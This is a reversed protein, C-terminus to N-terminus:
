ELFAFSGNRVTKLRVTQVVDGNSDFSTVGMVGKYKNIGYLGNKIEEPGGGKADIAEILINTADYSLAAFIDPEARFKRRFGQRFKQVTEDQDEPNYAPFTYIVDEAARGAVKLVEPDEFLVTSFVRPAFDAESMTRLILGAEKQSILYIAGTGSSKVKAVLTRFDTVGPSYGEQFSVIGGKSRFRNGFTKMLGVGYDNNIYLIAISRLGFRDIIQDAMVSGQYVDSPATRFIYDGARTIAPASSSPSLLVVKNSEAIPAMALTVSSPIGGLVAPVHNQLILKNIATVGVRPSAQCDEYIIEITKGRIGGRRNAEEIALSIGEQASKGYAAADGTLPLVAGIQFTASNKQRVFLVSVVVLIILAAALIIRKM